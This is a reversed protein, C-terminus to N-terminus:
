HHWRVDTPSKVTEEVCPSTATMRQLLHLMDDPQFPKLLFGNACSRDAEINGTMLVRPIQATVPDSALERLVDSGAMHPMRMDCVIVAPKVERALKLGQFGNRAISTAYGAPNLIEEVTETLAPDDDIILVPVPLNM